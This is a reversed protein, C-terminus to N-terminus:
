NESNQGSNQRLTKYRASPFRMSEHQRSIDSRWPAGFRRNAKSHYNGFTNSPALSSNQHHVQRPQTHLLSPQRYQAPYRSIIPDPTSPYQNQSACYTTNQRPQSPTSWYMTLDNYNINQTPPPYPQSQLNWSQDMARLTSFAVRHGTRLTKASL